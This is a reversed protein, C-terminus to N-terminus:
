SIEEKEIKEDGVEFQKETSIEELNEVESLLEKKKKKLDLGLTIIEDFKKIIKIKNNTNLDKNKLDNLLIECVDMFM